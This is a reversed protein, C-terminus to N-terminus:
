PPLMTFDNGASTVHERARLLFYATNQDASLVDAAVIHRAVGILRTIYEQEREDDGHLRWIFSSHRFLSLMNRVDGQSEFLNWLSKHASSFLADFREGYFYQYAQILKTLDPTSLTNSETMLRTALRVIARAATYLDGGAKATKYVERLANQSDLSKSGMTRSLVLNNAVTNYGRKRAQVELKLLKAASDEDERMEHIISEAQMAVGTKPTLDMVQRAVETATPDQLSQLCLAFNLLLHAEEDKSRSVADRGLLQQFLSRAESHEGLMRLSKALMIEITDRHIAFGENPIISLVDRCVIACNRYNKANLLAGCYIECLRIIPAASISPEWVSSTSLLRIVLFHPNQLLSGDDSILTGDVRRLNATGSRWGDGFYLATAKKVFSDIEHQTMCSLVYDRVPRPSVLIKTQDGSGESQRIM